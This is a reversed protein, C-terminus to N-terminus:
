RGGPFNRVAESANNTVTHFNRAADEAIKNAMDLVPQYRNSEAPNDLVQAMAVGLITSTISNINRLNEVADQIAIAAAQTVYLYAKASAEDLISNTKSGQTAKEDKENM